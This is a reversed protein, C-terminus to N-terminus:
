TKQTQKREAYSMWEGKNLNHLFHNEAEEPTSAVYGAPTQVGHAKLLEMSVYEHVNLNRIAGASAPAVSRRVVTRAAASTLMM